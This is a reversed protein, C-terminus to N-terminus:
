PDHVFHWLTSSIWPLPRTTLKEGGKTSLLCPRKVFKMWSGCKWATPIPRRM